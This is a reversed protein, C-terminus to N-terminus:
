GVRDGNRANNVKLEKLPCSGQYISAISLLM